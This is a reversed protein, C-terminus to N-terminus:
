PGKRNQTRITAFRGRSGGKPPIKGGLPPVGARNGKKRAGLVPLAKKQPMMKM